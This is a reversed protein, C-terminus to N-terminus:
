NYAQLEFQQSKAEANAVFLLSVPSGGTLIINNYLLPHLAPHVAQVAQVVAEAVGAQNLGIDSPHFLVQLCHFIIISHKIAPLM